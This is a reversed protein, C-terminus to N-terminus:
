QNPYLILVYHLHITAPDEEKEENLTEINPIDITINETKTEKEPPPLELDTQRTNSLQPTSLIVLDKDIKARQLADKKELALKSLKNWKNDDDYKDNLKTFKDRIM